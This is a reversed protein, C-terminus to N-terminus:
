FFYFFDLSFIQERGKSFPDVTFPFFKSETFLSSEFSAFWAGMFTYQNGELSKLLM